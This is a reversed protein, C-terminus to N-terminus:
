LHNKRHQVRIQCDSSKYQKSECDTLLSGLLNVHFQFHLPSYWMRYENIQVLLAYKHTIEDADM